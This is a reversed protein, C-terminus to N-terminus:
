RGSKLVILASLKEVMRGGIIGSSSLALGAAKDLLWGRCLRGGLGAVLVLQIRGVGEENM